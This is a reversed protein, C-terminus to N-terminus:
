DDPYYRKERRRRPTYREFRAKDWNYPRVQDAIAFRKLILRADLNDPLRGSQVARTRAKYLWNLRQSRVRIPPNNTSVLPKRHSATNVRWIMLAHDTM